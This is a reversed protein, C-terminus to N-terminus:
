IETLQFICFNDECRGLDSLSKVTSCFHVTKFGEEVTEGAITGCDINISPVM